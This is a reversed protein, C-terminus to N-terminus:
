AFRKPFYNDLNNMKKTPIGVPKRAVKSFYKNISNCQVSNKRKNTKKEMASIVKSERDFSAQLKQAYVLDPDPGEVISEKMHSTYDTCIDKVNSSGNNTKVGVTSSSIHEQIQNSSHTNANQQNRSPSSEHVEVKVPSSIEIKGYDERKFNNLEMSAKFFSDIGKKVCLMEFEIASLGIRCMPYCHSLKNEIMKLLQELFIQEFKSNNNRHFLDYHPFPIRISKSYLENAYRHDRVSKRQAKKNRETGVNIECSKMNVYTYQVSCSKPWRENYKFDFLVRKVLDKNLLQVYPKLDTFNHAKPFSKFSTISKNLVKHTAKVPEHCIGRSSNYVFTATERSKLHDIM